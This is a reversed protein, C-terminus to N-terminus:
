LIETSWFRVITVAVFGSDGAARTNKLSYRPFVDVVVMTVVEQAMYRFTGQIELHCVRVPFTISSLPASFHHRGLFACVPIKM